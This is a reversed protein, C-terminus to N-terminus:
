LCPAIFIGREKLSDPCLFGFSDPCCLSGLDVSYKKDDPSYRRGRLKVPDHMATQSAFQRAPTKGACHEHAKGGIPFPTPRRGIRQFQALAPTQKAFVM